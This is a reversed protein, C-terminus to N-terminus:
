RPGLIREFKNSIMVQAVLFGDVIQLNVADIFIVLVVVVVLFSILSIKEM